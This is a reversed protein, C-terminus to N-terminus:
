EGVAEGLSEFIPPFERLEGTEVVRVVGAEKDVTEFEYSLLECVTLPAYEDDELADLDSELRRRTRRTM